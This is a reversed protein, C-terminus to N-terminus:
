QGLPGRTATTERVMVGFKKVSLKRFAPNAKVGAAIEGALFRQASADDSFLYIGGAERTADNLLWIKWRLGPVQAIPGALPAVSREYDARSGTYEFNVQVIVPSFSPQSLGPAAVIALVALVVVLAKM